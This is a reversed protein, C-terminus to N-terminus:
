ETKQWASAPAVTFQGNPWSYRYIVGYPIRQKEFSVPVGFIGGSDWNKITNIEAIITDGNLPKGSEIVKAIPDRLILATAWSQM